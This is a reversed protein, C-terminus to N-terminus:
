PAKPVLNAARPVPASLTPHAHRTVREKGRAQLIACRHLTVGSGGMDPAQQQTGHGKRLLGWM